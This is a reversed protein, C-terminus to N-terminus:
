IFMSPDLAPLGFEVELALRGQLSLVDHFLKEINNVGLLCEFRQLVSLLSRCM